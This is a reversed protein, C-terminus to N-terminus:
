CTAAAWAPSPARSCPRPAWASASRAVSRRRGRPHEAAAADHAAHRARASGAGPEPVAVPAAARGAGRRLTDDFMTDGTRNTLDALVVLDREGAAGAHPGVALWVAAVVAATALPAALWWRRRGRGRRPAPPTCRCPWPPPMALRAAPAQLDARLDAASRTAAAAIRRSRRSCSPTSRPRCTRAARDLAAGADQHSHRRLHGGGDRRHVAAPRHGDRLARRRALLHRQPRRHGRRAGAGAVHLGRHRRGHGVMTLQSPAPTPRTSPRRRRGAAQRRRLRAGEAGRRRHRVPEGAQHRPPRREARHAADLARPSTPASPWCTTSRCRRRRGHAGALTAGELLEMVMFQQGDHEGIDFLTCINPHNLSSIIRAERQFRDVAEPM